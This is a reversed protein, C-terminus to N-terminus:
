STHLLDDVQSASTCNHLEALLNTFNHLNLLDANWDRTSLLTLRVRNGDLPGTYQQSENFEGKSLSPLGVVLEEEDLNKDRPLQDTGRTLGWCPSSRSPTWPPSIFLWCSLGLRLVTFGSSCSGLFNFSDQSM